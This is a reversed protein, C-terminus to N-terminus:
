SHLYIVEVYFRGLPSRYSSIRISGGFCNASIKLIIESSWFSLSSADLASLINWSNRLPSLNDRSSIEIRDGDLLFFSTYSILRCVSSPVRPSGKWCRDRGINNLFLFLCCWYDNEVVYQDCSTIECDDGLKAFFHGFIEVDFVKAFYTVTEIHFKIDTMFFYDHMMSSMRCAIRSSHNYDLWYAPPCWHSVSWSFYFNLRHLSSDGRGLARLRKLRSLQWSM